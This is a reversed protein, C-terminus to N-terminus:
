ELAATPQAKKQCDVCLRAQPLVRLREESIMSGCMECKGYAGAEIKKLADDVDGLVRELHRLLAMDKAQEFAETADDAMHNGYGLNDGAVTIASLKEIEGRLRMQERTLLDRFFEVQREDM